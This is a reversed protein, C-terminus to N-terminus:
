RTWGNHTLQVGQHTLDSRSVAEDRTHVLPRVLHDGDTGTPVEARVTGQEM